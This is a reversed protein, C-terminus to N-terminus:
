IRRGDKCASKEIANNRKDEIDNAMAIGINQLRTVEHEMTEKESAKFFAM